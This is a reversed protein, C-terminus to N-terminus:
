VDQKIDSDDSACVEKSSGSVENVASTATTAAEKTREEALERKLVEFGFKSKSRLTPGYREFIWPVPVMALAIFALISTAWGNGLNEYMQVTFLPFVSGVVYRLLNNAAMASAVSLPPYSMSFYLVVTFFILILSFGFPVGAAIPAMWQVSTRSTWGLWFLSIPLIVSGIKCILLRSEPTPPLPQGNKDTMGRTGDPRKKLFYFRDLYIFFAAGLNLGIGIGLFPLGSVGLNMGYTGRFIVPYAEFFGFLVAFVFAIYISFVMVIPESVLMQLPRFLTISLVVKLFQFPTIDPKKIKIGRKKARRRIITPKYTEDALLTLPLIAGAAMLNVWLTWKWGKKEAVFLGIVPGLVPGLFPALCFTSMALGLLDPNWIDSITGAAIAMAPSAFFGSFYRLVLISQINNSLGVGMIFLMSIPLSIVYVIKRGFLESLPAGIVPGLALGVLYFTLGSLGLEESILMKLELDPVGSVYLSSGFTVVLCVGAAVMTVFWRKTLSWNKPNDKDDPGDWDLDEFNVGDDMENEQIEEDKHISHKSFQSLTRQLELKYLASETEAAAQAGEDDADTEDVQVSLRRSDSHLSINSSPDPFTKPDGSIRDTLDDRGKYDEEEEEDDDEDEDDM